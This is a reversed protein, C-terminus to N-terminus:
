GARWEPALIGWVETDQRVGNAVVFDSRLSGEHTMGLREPVARSRANGPDHRWEVRFMGRERIAWDILRRAARTILGRGEAAPDLWVGGLECVGSATNFHIFMIGGVLTADLWIGHNHRTDNAHEVALTHLMQRASEVDVVTHAFPMWPALHARAREIAAAFQDAHWPELPGLVAGDGLEYGFM